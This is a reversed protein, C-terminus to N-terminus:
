KTTWTTWGVMFTLRGSSQLPGPVPCVVTTLTSSMPRPETEVTPRVAIEHPTRDMM